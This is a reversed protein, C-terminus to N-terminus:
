KSFPITKPYGEVGHGKKLTEERSMEFKMGAFRIGAGLAIGM